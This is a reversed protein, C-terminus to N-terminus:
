RSDLNKATNAHIGRQSTKAPASEAKLATKQLRQHKRWAAWQINHNQLTNSFNHGGAGNAVFYLADTSDPFIVARLAALGPNAIPGPPLGHNLYTNYQSQMELDDKTLARGFTGRGETLAYIVTPDAQLRMNKRLRNLFVGAIKPREEPVGTEKEVISALTVMEEPSRLPSDAQRQTWLKRVHGEMAAMMRRLLADRHDGRHYHYTEPLITGEPPPSLPPGYLDHVSNLQEVVQWSTQGETVTFPHVVQYRGTSLGELIM